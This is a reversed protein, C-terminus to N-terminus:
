YLLQQDDAGFTPTGWRNLTREEHRWSGTPRDDSVVQLETSLEAWNGDPDHFFLFLNNGPGHRGPGWKVPVDHKGRLRDGSDRISNWHRCTVRLFSPPRPQQHRFFRWATTSTTAECFALACVKRIM